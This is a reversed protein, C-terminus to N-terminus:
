KSVRIDYVQISKKKKHLVCVTPFIKFFVLYWVVNSNLSKWQISLCACSLPLNLFVILCHFFRIIYNDFYRIKHGVSSLIAKLSYIVSNQCVLIDTQKNVM